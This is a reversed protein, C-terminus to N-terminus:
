CVQHSSQQGPRAPNHLDRNKRLAAEASRVSLIHENLTESDLRHAKWAGYAKELVAVTPNGGVGLGSNVAIVHQLTWLVGFVGDAITNPAADNWIVRKVFALFPLAMAQGSGIAVFPMDMEVEESHAAVDYLLLSPQDRLPLAIVLSCYIDDLARQGVIQSLVSARELPPQMESWIEASIERRARSADWATVRTWLRQLRAQLLQSMGVSGASASIVYGAEISIKSSVEQEIVSYTMATDGGIVIGDKCKAGIILTM